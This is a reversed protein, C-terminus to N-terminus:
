SFTSSIMRQAHRREGHTWYGPINVVVEGWDQPQAHTRDPDILLLPLAATNPADAAVFELACFQHQQLTAATWLPWFAILLSVCVIAM